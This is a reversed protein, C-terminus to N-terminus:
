FGLAERYWVSSALCQCGLACIGALGVLLVCLVGRSLLILGPAPFRAEMDLESVASSLSPASVWVLPKRGLGQETKGTERPWLM